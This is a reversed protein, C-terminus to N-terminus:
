RNIYQIIAIILVSGGIILALLLVGMFLNAGTMLWLVYALVLGVPLIITIPFNYRIILGTFLVFILLGALIVDGFLTTQVLCEGVTDFHTYNLNQCLKSVLVPMM